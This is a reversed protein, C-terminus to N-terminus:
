GSAGTRQAGLVAVVGDVVASIMEACARVQSLHAGYPDGIEALGRAMPPASSRREDVLRVRVIFDEVTRPAGAEIGAGFHAFERMTFTRGRSDPDTAVVIDRHGTEATLILQSEVIMATDLLRAQHGDASGGIERLARASTADMAWGTLGSTGSSSTSLPLTPDIRSAFLREAMPSRCINGTCVFLVHFTM